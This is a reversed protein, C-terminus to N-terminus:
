GLPLLGAAFAYEFLQARSKLSLKEYIRSRYTDITKLKVTALFLHLRGPSPIGSGM